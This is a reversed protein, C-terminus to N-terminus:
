KGLDKFDEADNEDILEYRVDWCKECEFVRFQDGECSIRMSYKFNHKCRWQRFLTILYNM